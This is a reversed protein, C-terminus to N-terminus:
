FAKNIGYPPCKLEIQGNINPKIHNQLLSQLQFYKYEELGMKSQMCYKILIHKYTTEQASRRPKFLLKLKTTERM